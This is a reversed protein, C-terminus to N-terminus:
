WPLEGGDYSWFRGSHEPHLRDLTELIQAAAVDPPRVNLGTRAYPASLPTEVTGPHIAVCLSLPRSRALEIAATRIIQNLAAKSARYAYWGGTRNDGISGVKASLAAFVCRRSAPFLPLLHKAVLAPGVANVAFAHAMHVPDLQRWTKEPAFAQYPQAGPGHLFGSAVIVTRLPLGTDWVQQALAAVTHEDTLDCVPNGGRGTLMVRAHGGRAELAAALARGLGGSGVVVACGDPAGSNSGDM